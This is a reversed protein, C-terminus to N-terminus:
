TKNLAIALEEFLNHQTKVLLKKDQETFHKKEYETEIKKRMLTNVIKSIRARNGTQIFNNYEKNRQRVDLVWEIGPGNFSQIIEKAEEVDMVKMMIEKENQVPINISLQANEIPHLVYYTRTKGGYTKDSIDDLNLEIHDTDCKLMSWISSKAGVEM